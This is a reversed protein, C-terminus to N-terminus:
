RRGTPLKIQFEDNKFQNWKEPTYGHAERIERELDSESPLAKEPSPAAPKAPESNAAARRARSKEELAREGVAMAFAKKITTESVPAGTEKLINRVADEYEEFGDIRGAVVSFLSEDAKGAVANMSTIWGKKRAIREVAAEPDELILDSLPKDDNPDPAEPPPAAVKRELEELKRALEQSRANAASVGDVARSLFFKIEQESMDQMETPLVDVPISRPTPAAGGGGPDEAKERVGYQGWRKM